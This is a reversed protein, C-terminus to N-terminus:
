LLGQWTWGTTKTLTASGSSYSDFSKATASDSGYNLKPGQRFRIRLLISDCFNECVFYLFTYKIEKM